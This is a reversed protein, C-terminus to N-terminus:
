YCIYFLGSVTILVVKRNAETHRKIFQRVRAVDEDLTPPPPQTLFFEEASFPESAMDSFSSLTHETHVSQENKYYARTEFSKSYREVRYEFNNLPYSSQDLVRGLRRDHRTSRRTVDRIDRISRRTCNCAGTDQM